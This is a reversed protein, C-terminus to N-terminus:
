APADLTRRVSQVAELLAPRQTLQHSRLWRDFVSQMSGDDFAQTRVIEDLLDDKFARRLAAHKSRSMGSAAASAGPPQQQPPPQWAGLTGLAGSAACPQAASRLSCATSCPSAPEFPPAASSHQLRQQRLNITHPHELALRASATAPRQRCLRANWHPVPASGLRPEWEDLLVRLRQGLLSHKPPPLPSLLNCEEVKRSGCAQLRRSDVRSPWLRTSNCSRLLGGASSLPVAADRKYSSGCCRAGRLPTRALGHFRFDQRVCGGASTLFHVTCRFALPQFAGRM